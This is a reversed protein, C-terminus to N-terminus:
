GLSAIIERYAAEPFAKMTTTRVNGLMGVELTFRAAIADDPAEYVFVLDHAGMTMYVAQFRGGMDALMNKAADLRRPSERVAQMGRDTYNVLAIYLPM